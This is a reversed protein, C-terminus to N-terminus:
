QALYTNDACPWHASSGTLEHAALEYAFSHKTNFLGTIKHLADIVEQRCFTLPLLEPCYQGVSQVKQVKTSGPAYVFGPSNWDGSGGENNALLQEM